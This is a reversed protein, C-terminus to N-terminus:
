TYGRGLGRFLFLRARRFMCQAACLPTLSASGTNVITFRLRASSSEFLGHDALRFRIVKSSVADFTNGSEPFYNVIRNELAYNATNGPPQCKLGELM